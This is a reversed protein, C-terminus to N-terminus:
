SWWDGEGSVVLLRAPKRVAPRSPHGPDARALRRNLAVPSAVAAVVTETRETTTLVVQCSRRMAEGAWWAARGAALEGAEGGPGLDVVVHLVPAQPEEAEKVVLEGLRATARWHVQRLRDGPVYARVGRVVDGGTAPVVAGEGWGGGLEPFPEGPRVPRPGIELPRALVVSHARNCTVLGCLGGSTLRLTLRAIVGRAEAIGHVPGTAPPTAVMAEPGPGAPLALRVPLAPGTVALTVAFRDGVVVDTPAVTATMAVQQTVRMAVVADLVVVAVPLLFLLMGLRPDAVSSVALGAVAVAAAGATGGTTGLHRDPSASPPLPGAAAPPPM